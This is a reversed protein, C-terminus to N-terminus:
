PRKLCCWSTGILRRPSTGSLRRPSTGGLRRQTNWKLRVQSTLPVYLSVDNRRQWSTKNNPPNSIWKNVTAQKHRIYCVCITYHYEYKYFTNSKVKVIGSISLSLFITKSKPNCKGSSKILKNLIASDNM